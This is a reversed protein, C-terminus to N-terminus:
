SIYVGNRVQRITKEYLTVYEASKSAWSHDEQMGQRVVQSWTHKDDYARCARRLTEALALPSYDHFSFGNATGAQLTDDNTDTVTDALGGTARVVPPTGYRLSYLQNLGCPEYESPMVFIDSGAEIRHALRESFELRVAMRHPARGALTLLREHYEPDGTGLIVWQVDSNHLFDPLVDLVLGIKPSVLRSVIGLLPTAPEQPLGLEEQLAAKCAAKGEAFNDVTYNAALHQDTEPNWLSYDCGNVIGSLVDSRHQLVGELGCGLPASQIEEAYRPSVTSLADSFVLGTKLLNLQGYFEMEHWNFHKWDLGTLVMDWHWFRGQYALNHITFLTALQEFGPVGKYEIKAIAPILGTTWDNLHLLDVPLELMRITELVARSFFAFRECNDIYDKGDEGYLGERDYYHPQGILYVPVDSEPLTSRYLRGEVQKSGIPISFEVDMPEITQGCSWVRRYAPMILATEHGRNAIEIPLTGCVDALGGTKAFPVAESTALLINM